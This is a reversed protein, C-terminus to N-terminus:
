TSPPAIFSIDVTQTDGSVDATFIMRLLYSEGVDGRIKIQASYLGFASVPIAYETWEDPTELGALFYGSSCGMDEEVRIMGFAIDHYDTFDEAEIKIGVSLASVPLVVSLLLILFFIQKKRIGM